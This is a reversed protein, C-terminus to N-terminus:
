WDLACRKRMTRRRPTALTSAIINRTMKPDSAAAIATTACPFM